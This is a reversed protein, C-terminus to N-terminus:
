GGHTGDNEGEAGERGEDSRVVVRELDGVAAVLEGSALGGGQM